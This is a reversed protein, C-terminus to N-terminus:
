HHYVNLNLNRDKVIYSLRMFLSKWKLILILRILLLHSTVGVRRRSIKNKKAVFCSFLRKDRDFVQQIQIFSSMVDRQEPLQRVGRSLITYRCFIFKSEEQYYISKLSHIRFGMQIKQLYIKQKFLDYLWNNVTM